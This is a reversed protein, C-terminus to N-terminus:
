KLEEEEVEGVGPAPEEEEEEVAAAAVAQELDEAEVVEVELQLAEGAAVLEELALKPLHHKKSFDPNYCSAHITKPCFDLDNNFM